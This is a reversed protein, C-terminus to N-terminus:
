ILVSRSEPSRDTCSTDATSLSFFTIVHTCYYLYILLPPLVVYMNPGTTQIMQSGAHRGIHRANGDNGIRRHILVITIQHLSRQRTTALLHQEDLERIPLLMLM